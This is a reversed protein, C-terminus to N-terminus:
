KVADEDRSKFYGTLETFLQEKDTNLIYLGRTNKKLDLVPDFANTRLINWRWGYGRKSKPGHWFHVALGPVCGVNTKVHKDCDNQFKELLARYGPTFWSQAIEVGKGILCYAMHWDGSGVICWDILGGVNDLAERTAAWALGTAGKRGSNYRTDIIVEKENQWAAIFSTTKGIQQHNADLDIYESFMQVFDYKDLSAITDQVWNPNMFKVDADIWAIYKADDPLHSIGINLLNEKHWYEQSGRIQINLPDSASTIAFEQDDLALEVTLLVVDKESAIYEKFQRYLEYRSEYKQTNSICTVVYLKKNM